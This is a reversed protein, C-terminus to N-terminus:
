CPLFALETVFPKESTFLAFNRSFIEIAPWLPILTSCRTIHLPVLFTASMEAKGTFGERLGVRGRLTDWFTGVGTSHSNPLSYTRTFNAQGAREPPQQKPDRVGRRKGVL